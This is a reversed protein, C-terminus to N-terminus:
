TKGTAPQAGQKVEALYSYMVPVVYLSFLAGIALGATIVLGMDYRSVAGPGSALLLPIVGFVMAGTTM